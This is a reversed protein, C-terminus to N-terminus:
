ISDMLSRVHASVMENALLDDSNTAASIDRIDCFVTRGGRDRRSGHDADMEM